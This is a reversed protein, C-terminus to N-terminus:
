TRDRWGVKGVGAYQSSRGENATGANRDVRPKTGYQGGGGVQQSRLAALRENLAAKKERLPKRQKEAEASKEPFVTASYSPIKALEGSVAKIEEEVAKIQAWLPEAGSTGQLPRDCRNLWNVFRRRTPQKGNVECWRKLKGLEVAVDIGAYTSDGKLRDIWEEDLATATPRASALRKGEFSEEPSEKYIGEIDRCNQQNRETCSRTGENCSTTSDTCSPLMTYTNPSLEKSGAIQNQIWGLVGVQKLRPLIEGVRRLSVGSREQITRKRVQFSESQHDSALECLALYVALAQDLYTSDDFAERIKRLASKSVWCWPGDSMSRAGHRDPIPDAVTSATVNRNRNTHARM